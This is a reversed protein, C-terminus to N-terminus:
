QQGGTKQILAFIEAGIRQEDLAEREVKDDEMLDTFAKFSAVPDPGLMTKAASMSELLNAIGDVAEHRLRFSEVAFDVIHKPVELLTTFQHTRKLDELMPMGSSRVYGDSRFAAVVWEGIGNKSALFYIHAAEVHIWRWGNKDIMIQGQM